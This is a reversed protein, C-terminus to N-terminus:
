PTHNLDDQLTQWLINYLCARDCVVGIFLLVSRMGNYVEVYEKSDAYLSMKQVLRNCACSFITWFLITVHDLALCVCVEFM